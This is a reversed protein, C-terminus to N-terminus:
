LNTRQLLFYHSSAFFCQIPASHPQYLTQSPNETANTKTKAQFPFKNTNSFSYTSGLSDQCFLVTTTITNLMITHDKSRNPHNSVTPNFQIQNM